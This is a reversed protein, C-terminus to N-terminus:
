QPPIIMTVEDGPLVTIDDSIPVRNSGIPDAMFRLSTAGFVLSSPITLRTTTLGNATGIRIRQSSRVVYINMDLVARNDVKLITPAEETRMMKSSACASLILAAAAAVFSRRTYRM